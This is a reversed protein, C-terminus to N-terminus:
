LESTFRKSREEPRLNSSNRSGQVIEVEEAQHPVNSGFLENVLKQIM